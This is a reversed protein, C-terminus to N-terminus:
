APRAPGLALGAAQWAELGGALSCAQTFGMERLVQAALISRRGTSCVVVISGGPDFIWDPADLELRGRPIAMADPVTGRAVEGAERVDLALAGAAVLRQAEAPGVEPVVQQAARVFDDITKAM